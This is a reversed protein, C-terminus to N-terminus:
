HPQPCTGHSMGKSPLAPNHRRPSKPRLAIQLNNSDLSNTQARFTWPILRRLSNSNYLKDNLVAGWFDEASARFTWKYSTIVANHLAGFTRVTEIRPGLM